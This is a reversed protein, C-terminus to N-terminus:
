LNSGALRVELRSYEQRLVDDYGLERGSEFVRALPLGIARLFDRVFLYPHDNEPLVTVTAGSLRNTSVLHYSVRRPGSRLARNPAWTLTQDNQRRQRPPPTVCRSDM